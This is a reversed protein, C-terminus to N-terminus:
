IMEPTQPKRLALLYIRNTRDTQIELSEHPLGEVMKRMESETRYYMSWDVGIEAGWIGSDSSRKINGILLLGGPRLKDYLSRTLKQCRRDKLYDFLGITYIMDQPPLDRSLKGGKMLDTFSSQYLNLDVNRSQRAVSPYAGEYARKLAREDQDILSFCVSTQLEPVKLINVIEQATGCALNTIRMARGGEFRNLEQGIKQQVMTMRTAVCELTDLGLRHILKAYLTEGEDKWSYVYDMVLHDGPYGLPKTYAQHWIPGHLLEPTVVSETFSKVAALAEPQDLISQVYANTEREFAHWQPKLHDFCLNIVDLDSLGKGSNTSPDQSWDDLIRRYRRLLDLFNICALKYDPDVRARAPDLQDILEQKLALEKHRAILKPIDLHDGVFRIGIKHGGFSPEARVIEGIGELLQANDIHFRVPVSQGIRPADYTESAIASLGSMSLNCLRHPRDGIDTTPLVRGFLEGADFRQARFNKTHSSGGKLDEYLGM